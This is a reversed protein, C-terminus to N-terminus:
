EYKPSKWIRIGFWYIIEFLSCFSFGICLGLLGGLQALFEEFSMRPERSFRVAKPAPFYFTVMAIDDEYAEYHMDEDNIYSAPFIEQLTTESKMRKTTAFKRAYDPMKELNAYEKHLQSGFIGPNPGYKDELNCLRSTGFNKLNCVRFPVATVSTSYDTYECDVLCHSCQSGNKIKMYDIFTNSLWPDCTSANKQSGPLFWPYCPGNGEQTISKLARDM